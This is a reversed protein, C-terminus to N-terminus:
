PCWDLPIRHTDYFASYEKMMEQLQRESKPLPAEKGKQKIRGNGYGSSGAGGRRKQRYTASKLVTRDRTASGSFLPSGESRKPSLTDGTRKKKDPSLTKRFQQAGVVAKVDEEDDEDISTSIGFRTAIMELATQAKRAWNLLRVVPM